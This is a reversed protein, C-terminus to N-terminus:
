EFILGPSVGTLNRHNEPEEILRHNSLFSPTSCWRHVIRLAATGSQYGYIHNGYSSLERRWNPFLHEQPLFSPTTCPRIPSIPISQHRSSIV